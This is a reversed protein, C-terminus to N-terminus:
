AVGDMWADRPGFIADFRSCAARPALLFPTGSGSGRFNGPTSLERFATPTITDGNAFVFYTECGSYQQWLEAGDLAASEIDHNGTEKYRDGAKADVFVIRTEVTFRKAAIIDPMYRVPTRVRRIIDRMDASLQGQGFREARWQREVLTAVVKEEFAVAVELRRAFGTIM